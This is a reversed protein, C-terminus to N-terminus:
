NYPIGCLLFLFTGSTVKTTMGVLGKGVGKVVGMAGEQRGGEVPERVLDTFGGVVGEQFNTGAVIAGSKWDTIAGREAVEGGYLKPVARLGETAALPMDLLMGKYFHHFLGGVGSASGLAARAFRGSSSARPQPPKSPSPTDAHRPASAGPNLPDLEPPNPASPTQAAPLPEPEPIAGAEPRQYAKIPKIVIDAASITMRTYTGALSSLVASAPDWRRVDTRIPNPEYRSLRSWTTSGNEVLIQAALKSLHVEKDGKVYSWTAPQDKLIHCRMRPLPLNNHFSEVAQQVGFETRMKQSMTIAATSAAETLCFEIAQALNESTLQKHPIPRPGAGAAAVMDGWFPQSHSATSTLSRSVCGSSLPTAGVRRLFARYGHAPCAASRM